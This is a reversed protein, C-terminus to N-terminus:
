ETFKQKMSETESIDVDSDLNSDLDSDMASDVAISVAIPKRRKCGDTYIHYGLALIVITVIFILGHVLISTGSYTMITSAFVGWLNFLMHYLISLYISGGKYCIYGCFLGVVFAYVGQVVNGHFVGFLFAQFINAIWFPMIKIAYHMTVGRFILEESIPAIIVSYLALLFTVHEFDLSTILTEYTHFWAPHIVSVLNVIYGSLYQLGAMLFLLGIIMNPHFLQNFHRKCSKKPAFKKWYWFGLAFAAITAYLASLGTIFETNMSSYIANMYSDMDSFISPNSLVLTVIKFIMAPVIIMLQIAMALLVPLLCFLIRGIKQFVNKIM